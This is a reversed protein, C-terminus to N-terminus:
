SLDLTEFPVLGTFSLNMRLVGRAAVQVNQNVIKADPIFLLNEGTTKDEIRISIYPAKLLDVIPPIAGKGQLGKSYKVRLGSISGTTSVRNSAIGQPFPSDIGYIAEEGYNISWSIQDIESFVNGNLWVKVLAGSVVKSSM